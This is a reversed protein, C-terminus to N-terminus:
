GPTWENVMEILLWRVGEWIMLAVLVMLLVM